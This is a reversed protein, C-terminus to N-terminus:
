EIVLRQSLQQGGAQLRVLYLSPALDSLDLELTADKVLQTRIIRGLADFLTLTTQSGSFLAPVHVKVRSRAPNPHLALSMSVPSSTATTLQVTFPLTNSNGGVTTVTVPGTSAGSPVVIGSLVTGTANVTFGSTVATNGAGTFVVTASALNTGTITVTSGAPGSTPSITLLHPASPSTYHGINDMVTEDGSRFFVGSVYMGSPSAAMEFVGQNGIIGADATSWRTGNWKMLATTQWDGPNARFYRAAYVNGSLDVALTNITGGPVAFSGMASWSTGNWMAVGDAPAGNGLATFIGGAYLNGRADVALSYVLSNLGSSLASWRTGDWKAVRNAAVGGITTFLGAVYLDNGQTVISTIAGNTASNLASWTSGDWKAINQVSVGGATTFLGEVYLNGSADLALNHGNVVNGSLGSGLASWATGDWKAIHSAPVGGAATFIGAAYVNGNSDVALADVSHTGPGAYSTGGGVPKWNTGDWRAIRSALTDGAAAFSGAAYLNGGADVAMAVVNSHVGGAPASTGMRSWCASSITWKAVNHVATTGAQQFQGGAYLHGSVDVALAMMFSNIDQLASWGSGEWKAINLAAGGGAMTFSGGVYLTGSGDVALATVSSNGTANSVGTGLPSWATGNWKAVRNAPVGGATSFNGGMYVNGSGDVALANVNNNAGAGMASWATGNWRAVGSAGASGGGFVGGAYVEGNPGVALAQVDGGLGGGMGSWATGNWKAVHNDPGNFYFRGGAYLTGVRDVALAKVDDTTGQSLASWASGNWKAINSAAVGGARIFRGGAYLNGSADVALAYVTGYNNNLGTGGIGAGLASWSTGDWKAVNTAPMRGASTFYGGVYLVNGYVALAYVTGNTGNIGFEDSWGLPSKGATRQQQTGTRRRFVPRGDEATHLAYGAANFSGKIGCQVTGDMNLVTGLDSLTDGPESSARM